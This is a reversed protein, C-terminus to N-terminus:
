IGKMCGKVDYSVRKSCCSQQTDYKDDWDEALGGCDAGSGVKCDKVCVNVGGSRWVVYWKETGTATSGMCSNLNYSFHDRCCSELDDFLWVSSGVMYVPALNSGTDQLCGESDGSWDPYYKGSGAYSSGMCSKLDHSFHDKCCSELDDFLWVSSGQMYVPALNSGTDQLCGESDGSWDPYYKGSGAYSSGMCSNLSYSFHDKCCSELDDFLWVSSGQMYVPALNSGTDQLCGESDGSWDPYYKNSGTYSVSEGICDNLKWDFYNRCCEEKDTYFWLAANPDQIMYKPANGDNKCDHEGSTWDPYYMDGSTASSLQGICSSYSWPYHESCCDAKTNFM